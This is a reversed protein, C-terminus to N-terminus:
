SPAHGAHQRIASLLLANDTHKSVHFAAGAELMANIVKEDEHMSYSVVVTKPAASRIEKTAAAGGKAPMEYDMLVVDPRLDRAMSVAEAGNSAMGIVKMDDQLDLFQSIAARIVPHDDAILIRIPKVM